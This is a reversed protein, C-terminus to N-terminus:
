KHVIALKVEFCKEVEILSSIRIKISHSINLSSKGTPDAVATAIRKRFNVRASIPLDNNRVGVHSNMINKTYLYLKNILIHNFRSKESYLAFRENDDHSIAKMHLHPFDIQKCGVSQLRLYLDEDEGGWGEYAEDYLGVETILDRSCVFSGWTELDRGTFGPEHRYFAREKPQGAIWDILGPGVLVDSDVLCIMDGSSALLGVNRARAVVFPLDDQIYVVKVQPFTQEVWHGAGQPCNHDVVIIEEAGAEVLFPLTKKLNHLRGRCTTVISFRAKTCSNFNM